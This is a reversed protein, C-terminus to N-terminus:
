SIGSFFSPFKHPPVTGATSLAFRASSVTLNARDTSYTPIRSHGREIIEDILAEDLVSDEHIMYVSDLPNM